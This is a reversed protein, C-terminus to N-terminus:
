HAILWSSNLFMSENMNLFVICVIDYGIFRKIGKRVSVSLFVFSYDGSEMVRVSFTRYLFCCRLKSEFSSHFSLICNKVSSIKIASAKALIIRSLHLSFAVDFCSLTAYHIHINIVFVKPLKTHMARLCCIHIKISKSAKQSFSLRKSIIKTNM